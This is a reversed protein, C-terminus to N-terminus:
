TANIYEYYSTVALVIGDLFGSKRPNKLFLVYLPTM